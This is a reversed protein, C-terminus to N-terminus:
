PRSFAELYRAATKSGEEALHRLRVRNAAIFAMESASFLATLALSLLIIWVYIM